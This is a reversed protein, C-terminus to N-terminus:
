RVILMTGTPPPEFALRHSDLWWVGSTGVGNLWVRHTGAPVDFTCETATKSMPVDDYTVGAVTVPVKTGDM